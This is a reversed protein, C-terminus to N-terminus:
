RINFWLHRLAATLETSFDPFFRTVLEAPLADVLADGHRNTQYLGVTLAWSRTLLSATQSPTQGLKPSLLLALQEIRAALETKFAVLAPLLEPTNPWLGSICALELLTPPQQVQAVYMPLIAEPTTLSHCRELLQQIFALLAESFLVLFIHEKNRFSLYVSGKGVDAAQAIAAVTPIERTNAFLHLAADTLLRQRQLREPESLAHRPM